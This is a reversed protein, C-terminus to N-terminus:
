HPQTAAESLLKTFRAGLATWDFDAAVLAHAHKALHLGGDPADRIDAIAAGFDAPSDAILAHTGSRVPLGEIGKTTSVVPLGLAFAELVKLRTGGGTLLPVLLSGAARMTEGADAVHGRFEIRDGARALIRAVAPRPNSGAVDIKIDSRVLPLVEDVLYELGEINATADLSALFLPRRGAPRPPVADPVDIGNSVIEVQARPSMELLDAADLESCAVTLAARDMLETEQRRVRALVRGKVPAPLGGTRTLSEGLRLHHVNHSDYVTGGLVDPPLASALFLQSLVIVDYSTRRLHEAVAQRVGPDDGVVHYYSRGLVTRLRNARTGLMAGIPRGVVTTSDCLKEIEALGAAVGPGDPHPLTILDLQEAVARTAKLLAWNRHADGSDTPRPAKGMLYLIRL